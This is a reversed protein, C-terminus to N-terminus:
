SPGKFRSWDPLRRGESRGQACAKKGAAPTKAQREPWNLEKGGGAGDQKGLSAREKATVTTSFISVSSTM